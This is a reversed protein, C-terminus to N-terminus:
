SRSQFTQVVYHWVEVTCRSSHTESSQQETEKLIDGMVLQIASVFPQIQKLSDKSHGKIEPDSIYRQIVCIHYSKLAELKILIHFTHCLSTM